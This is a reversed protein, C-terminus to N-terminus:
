EMAWSSVQVGAGNHTKVAHRVGGHARCPGLAEWGAEPRSYPFVEASPKRRVQLYNRTQVGCGMRQPGLGLMPHDMRSIVSDWAPVM